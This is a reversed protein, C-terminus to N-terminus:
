SLKDPADRFSFADFPRLNRSFLILDAYQRPDDPTPPPEAVRCPLPAAKKKLARLLVPFFLRGTRAKDRASPPLFFPIYFFPVLAARDFGEGTDRRPAAASARRGAVIRRSSVKKV